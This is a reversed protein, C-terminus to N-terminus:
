TSQTGPDKVPQDDLFNRPQGSLSPPRVYALSMVKVDGRVAWLAGTAVKKQHRNVSAFLFLM